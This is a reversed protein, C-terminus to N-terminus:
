KIRPKLLYGGFLMVFGLFAAVWATASLHLLTDSPILAHAVRAVGAILISTFVFGGRWGARLSRGTHGLTARAMVALTMTGIAGVGLAHFPAASPIGAPIFVAIGAIALGVPVWLYALHLILLLVDPLCREGCWRALRMFNAIAATILLWGAIANDAAVTWAALSFGLTGLAFVDFRGFPAPLRGPQRKVLWNRSFSPIIRGGIIGILMIATALGMRRAIDSAGNWEVEAHYLINAALLVLVPVLVKLNRWNRGAIIERAMAAVLLGLFLCDLSVAALPGIASSFYVACRGAVWALFLVILPIGSLPLRGTWNPVATLLFGAIIAPLYGFLMEHIHWEIPNFHSGTQISGALLPIWVLMAAAAFAAGFLFFPRFGYSFLAPGHYPRSRPIAM